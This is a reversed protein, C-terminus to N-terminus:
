RVDTQFGTRQHPNFDIETMGHIGSEVVRADVETKTEELVEGHAIEEIAKRTGWRRSLKIKDHVVDYSRFQFITVTSV